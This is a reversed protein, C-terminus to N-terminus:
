GPYHLPDSYRRTNEAPLWSCRLASVFIDANSVLVCAAVAIVCCKAALM